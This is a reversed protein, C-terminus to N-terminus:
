LKLIQAATRVLRLVAAPVEPGNPVIEMAVTDNCDPDPVDKLCEFSAEGTSLVEAEFRYGAALIRQVLQDTEASEGPHLVRTDITIRVQRGNPRLFQVFPIEM